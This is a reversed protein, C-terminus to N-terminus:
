RRRNNRFPKYDGRGGLTYSKGKYTARELTPSARSSASKSRQNPTFVRKVAQIQNQTHKIQNRFGKPQYVMGKGRVYRKKYEVGNREYTYDNKVKTGGMGLFGVPVTYRRVSKIGYGTKERNKESKWDLKEKETMQDWPKFKKRKMRYQGTKPPDPDFKDKNAQRIAAGKSDKQEGKLNATKGFVGQFKRRIWFFLAVILILPVAALAIYVFANGSIGLATLLKALIDDVFEIGTTKAPTKFEYPEGNEDVPEIKIDAMIGELDAFDLEIKNESVPYEGILQGDVYVRVATVMDNATYSLERKDPQGPVNAVSASTIQPRPAPKTTTSVESEVTDIGDAIAQVKIRYLTNPELGTVAHSTSTVTGKDVGDVFVTYKEAYQVPQWNVTFSDHKLDSISITPKVMEPAKTTVTLVNSEVDRGFRDHSIVKFSYESLPELKTVDLFTYMTTSLLKGDQYVSYTNGVSNWTLRLGKSTLDQYTLTPPVPPGIAGTMLAKSKASENFSRDIASVQFAYTQGTELGSVTYSNNKIPTENLKVGNKYVFYGTLDEETNANWDLRVSNIGSTGVLGTPVAPPEDDAKYFEMEHIYVTYIGNTNYENKLAVRTVDSVNFTFINRWTSTNARVYHVEKGTSDYLRISVGYGYSSGSYRFGVIKSPPIDIWAYQNAYLQIHGDASGDTLLTTTSTPTGLTTGINVIRGEAMNVTGEPPTFVAALAFSPLSMVLVFILLVLKRM